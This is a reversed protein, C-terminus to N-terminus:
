KFLIRINELVRIMGMEKTPISMLDFKVLRILKQSQTSQYRGRSSPLMIEVVEPKLRTPNGTQFIKELNQIIVLLGLLNM